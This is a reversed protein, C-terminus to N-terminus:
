SIGDNAKLKRSFVLRDLVYFITLTVLYIALTLERDAIVITIYLTLIMITSIFERSKLMSKDFSLIKDKKYTMILLYLILVLNIPIVYKILEHSIENVPKLTNFLSSVGNVVVLILNFWKLFTRM